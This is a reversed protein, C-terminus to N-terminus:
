ASFYGCSNSDPENRFNMSRPSAIEYSNGYAQIYKKKLDTFISTSSLTFINMGNSASLIKKAQAYHMENSRQTEVSTSQM